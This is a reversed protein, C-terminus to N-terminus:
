GVVDLRKSPKREGRSPGQRYQKASQQTRANTAEGRRALAIGADRSGAVRVSDISLGTSRLAQMLVAREAEVAARAHQGAVGIVVRLGREARDVVVSIEGLDGADVRMRMPAASDKAAGSSGSAAASKGGPAPGAAGRSHTLREVSRGSGTVQGASSRWATPSLWDADAGLSAPLHESVTEALAMAWAQRDEDRQRPPRERHESDDAALRLSTSGASSM